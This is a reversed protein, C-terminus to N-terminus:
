AEVKWTENRAIFGITGIKVGFEDAVAQQTKGDALLKRIRGVKEWNLKAAPSREGPGVDPAKALGTAYAHHMNERHTVWELNALDNNSKNGDIHNIFPKADPNPLFAMALLRHLLLNRRNGNLRVQVALYGGNYAFPKLEKRGTRRVRGSRTIELLTEYAPAPYWADLDDATRILRSPM